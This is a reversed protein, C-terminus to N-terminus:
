FILCPCRRKMHNRINAAATYTDKIRQCQRMNLLKRVVDRPCRGNTANDLALDWKRLVLDGNDICTNHLVICALALLKM